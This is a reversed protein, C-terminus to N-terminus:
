IKARLSDLYDAYKQMMERREELLDSRDYAARVRNPDAHDLQKEVPGDEASSYRLEQCLLTKAMARFGHISMEDNSYGIRNLAADLGEAGIPRTATKPSPFVLDGRKFEHLEKLLGVTQRALPVYHPQTRGKVKMRGARGGPILWMGGELDFEEWRAGRLEISRVFVLPMIKLAFRVSIDGQFSDIARLLAGVQKPDTIAARQKHEAKALVKSLNAAANFECLGSIRGYELVNSCVSAARHASERHGTAEIQRLCPLIDQPRLEAVPVAGISPFFTNQLRALLRKWHGEVYQEKVSAHWELAVQEFTNARRKEEERAQAKSQQKKENPDIGNELWRKAEALAIRAAKLSVEPYKGVTLTKQKGDFRYLYRWAMGGSPYVFLFLGGGDGIKQLKDTPKLSRLRTDTLNGAM